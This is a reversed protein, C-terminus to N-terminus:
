FHTFLQWKIRLKNFNGRLIRIMSNHYVVLAVMIQLELSVSQSVLVVLVYLIVLVVFKSVM